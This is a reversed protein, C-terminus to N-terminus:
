SSIPDKQDGRRALWEDFRVHDESTAHWGWPGPLPAFLERWEAWREQIWVIYGAMRGGVWREKDHELMDEPARGHAKAYAAYRPNWSKSPVDKLTRSPVEM